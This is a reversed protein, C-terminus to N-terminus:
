SRPSWTRWAGARADLKTFPATRKTFPATCDKPVKWRKAERRTVRPPCAPEPHVLAPLRCTVSRGSSSVRAQCRAHTHRTQTPRVVVKKHDEWIDCSRAAEISQNNVLILCGTVWFTILTQFTCGDPVANLDYTILTVAALNLKYVILTCKLPKTPPQLTILHILLGNRKEGRRIGQTQAVAGFCTTSSAM